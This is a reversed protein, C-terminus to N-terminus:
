TLFAKPHFQASNTPQSRTHRERLRGVAAFGILIKNQENDLSGRRLIIWKTSARSYSVQFFRLIL